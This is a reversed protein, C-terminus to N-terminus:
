ASPLSFGLIRWLWLGCTAAVATLVTGWILDVGVQTWSWGRLTALNTFEYTGYAAAGFIAANLAVRSLPQDLGPVTVLWLLAAVYFLYFVAAPGLRPQDLLISGVRAEFVPGVIYRLGLFDLGLFIAATLLYLVVLSM